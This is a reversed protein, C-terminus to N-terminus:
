ERGLYPLPKQTKLDINQDVVLNRTDTWTVDYVDLLTLINLEVYSEKFLFGEICQDNLAIRSIM